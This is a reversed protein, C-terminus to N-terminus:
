DGHQLRWSFHKYKGQYLVFLCCKPRWLYIQCGNCSYSPKYGKDPLIINVFEHKIPTVQSNCFTVHLPSSSVIKWNKSSRHSPFCITWNNWAFHVLDGSTDSDTDIREKSFQHSYIRFNRTFNVM